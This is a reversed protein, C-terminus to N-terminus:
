TAKKGGPNKLSILENIIQDYTQDKTAIKKLKTRTETEILICHRM